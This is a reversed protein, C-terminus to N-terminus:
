SPAAPAQPLRSFREHHISKWLCSPHHIDTTASYQRTFTDCLFSPCEFSMFSASIGSVRKQLSNIGNSDTASLNCLDADAVFALIFMELHLRLFTEYTESEWAAAFAPVPPHVSKSMIDVAEGIYERPNRSFNSVKDKLGQFSDCDFMFPKMASFNPTAAPDPEGTGLFALGKTTGLIMDDAEVLNFRGRIQSTFYRIYSRFFLCTQRGLTTVANVHLDM